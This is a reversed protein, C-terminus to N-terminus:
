LFKSSGSYPTLKEFDAMSLYARINAGEIAAINEKTGYTADGTVQRPRVRWRFATRWLLDLMPQNEMVEAPTVLVSLIVRAKAGDM